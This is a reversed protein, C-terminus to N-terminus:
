PRDVWVTGRQDVDVPTYHEEVWRRLAVTPLRATPDAPTTVVLSPRRGTRDMWRFTAGEDHPEETMWMANTDVRQDGFLYGGPFGIFLVGAGPDAYEHVVAQLWALDAARESTTM